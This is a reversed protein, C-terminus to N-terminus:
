KGPTATGILGAELDKLISAIDGMKGNLMVAVAILAILIVVFGIIILLTPANSKKGEMAENYAEADQMAVTTAKEMRQMAAMRASDVPKLKGGDRMEGIIDPPTSVGEVVIQGVISVQWFKSRYPPYMSYFAYGKVLNYDFEVKKGKDNLRWAHVVERDKPYLEDTLIVGSRDLILLRAWSGDGIKRTKYLNIFITLPIGIFLVVVVFGLLAILFPHV